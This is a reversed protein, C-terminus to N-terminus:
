DDIVNMLVSANKLGIDELTSDLVTILNIPKGDKGVFELTFLKSDKVIDFNFKIVEYIERILSSLYFRRVKRTKGAKIQLRTTPKPDNAKPEIQDKPLITAFIEDETDLSVDEDDAEKEINKDKDKDKSNNDDANGGKETKTKNESDDDSNLSIPNNANNNKSNNHILNIPAKSGKDVTFADLFEFVDNIWTLTDPIKGDQGWIKYCEGSFPDLIALYPYNEISYLTVYQMGERDKISYNLFIFNNKIVQKIDRNSFFDRYMLSCSFEAPNFINVLLWKKLKRAETKAIMLPSNTIIEHPPAFLRALLREHDTRNDRHHTQNRYNSQHDNEDDDEEFEIDEVNNNHNDEDIEDNDGDNNNTRNHFPNSSNINGFRNSLLNSFNNNFSSFLPDTYYDDDVLVETRSQIPARPEQQYVENQLRAALKDNTNTNNDHSHGTLSGGSEFFLNVATDINGDSVDLFNKAIARDTTDTFALFTDI